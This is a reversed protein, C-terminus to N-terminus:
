VCSGDETEAGQFGACRGATAATLDIVDRRDPWQIEIRRDKREVSFPIKKGKEYPYIITIFSKDGPEARHENSADCVQPGSVQNRGAMGASLPQLFSLDCETHRSMVSRAAPTEGERSVAVCLSPNVGQEYGVRGAEVHVRSPRLFTLECDVGCSGDCHVTRGDFSVNDAVVQFMFEPKKEGCEIEDYILYYRGEKLYYVHRLFKAVEAVRSADGVAYSFAEEDKFDLIRPDAPNRGKGEPMMQNKRDFAVTNHLPTSIGSYYVYQGYHAGATGDIAIPQGYAYLMFSNEDHNYHHYTDACRMALYDGKQYGHGRLVVGFGRINKSQLFQEPMAGEEAALRRVLLPLFFPLEQVEPADHLFSEVTADSTNLRAVQTLQDAFEDDLGDFIKGALAYHLGRSHVGAQDFSAGGDGVTACISIGGYRRDPPTHLQLLCAFSRKLVDLYPEIDVGNAKLPLLAKVILRLTVFCYNNPNELYMGSEYFDRELQLRLLKLAFDLFKKHDPHDPFTFAFYILGVFGHSVFNGIPADGQFIESWPYYGEDVIKYAVYSLFAQAQTREDESFVGAADLMDFSRCVSELWLGLAHLGPVVQSQYFFEERRYELSNLFLRRAREAYKREGTLYYRFCLLEIGDPWELERGVRMGEVAADFADLEQRGAGDLYYSRLNEVNEGAMFVLPKDGRSPSDFRLHQDKIRDLPNEFKAKLYWIYHHLRSKQILGYKDLFRDVPECSRSQGRCLEPFHSHPFLSVRWQLHSLDIRNSKDSVVLNWAAKGRMDSQIYIDPEPTQIVRVTRAHPPRPKLSRKEWFAPEIAHVGIFDDNVDDDRYAAQWNVPYYGKIGGVSRATLDKEEEYLVKETGVYNFDVLWGHSNSIATEPKFNEYMSFQFEGLPPDYRSSEEHISLHDAGRCVRVRQRHSEGSCLTYVIEVEAFAPGSALLKVEYSKLEEDFRVRGEGRWLNDPGKVARIFGLESSVDEAKYNRAKEERRANGLLKVQIKGNDIVFEEADVKEVDCLSAFAVEPKADEGYTFLFKKTGRPPLDTIFWLVAYSVQGNRSQVDTLQCPVTEENGDLLCFRGEPFAGKEFALPYSLLEGQWDHGLHETLVIEQSPM